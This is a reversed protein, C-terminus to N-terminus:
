SVCATPAHLRRVLRGTHSREVAALHEVGEARWRLTAGLTAVLPYGLTSILRAQLRKARSSRWSSEASM